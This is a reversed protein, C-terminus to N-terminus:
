KPGARSTHSTNTDFVPFQSPLLSEKPAVFECVTTALTEHSAPSLSGRRVQSQHNLQIWIGTSNGVATAHSSQKPEPTPVEPQPNRSTAARHNKVETIIEDISITPAIAAHRTKIFSLVGSRGVRMVVRMEDRGCVHNKRAHSLVRRGTTSANLGEYFCKM